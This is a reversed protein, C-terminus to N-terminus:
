GAAPGEVRLGQRAPAAELLRAGRRASLIAEWRPKLRAVAEREGIAWLCGGAGAGTFRAGCGLARAAAALRVGLPDLVEPTMRRRIATERNMAAAACGFDRARLAAAFRRTCDVIEAWAERNRGAAFQRIWRANVDSSVHPVGAYAVLLHPALEGLRRRPWLPERRFAGRRPPALWHWANAGGFVAALQDQCGCPVGAVAEEIGHAILAAAARGPLPRLGARRGLERFAGVLAVAATSSGGLASRPPSDSRIAIHLGDAQFFAAVAFILGMPHDFPVRGSPFEAPRFGRSSVRIRGRAHPAIVATTRLDLAINLTLPGLPQLLYSFTRIDLTGGMDIRCPASVAVPEAAALRRWDLPRGAARMEPAHM